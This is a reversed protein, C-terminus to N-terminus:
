KQLISFHMHDETPSDSVKCLFVVALSQYICLSINLETELFWQTSVVTCLLLHFEDPDPKSDYISSFLFAQFSYLFIFLSVSNLFLFLYLFYFPVWLPFFEFCGRRKGTCKLLSLQRLYRFVPDVNECRHSRVSDSFM